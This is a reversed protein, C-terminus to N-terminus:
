HHCTMPLALLSICAHHTCTGLSAVHAAQLQKMVATSHAKYPMLLQAGLCVLIAVGVDKTAPEEKYQKVAVETCASVRWPCATQVRTLVTGSRLAFRSSLRKHQQDYCALWLQTWIHFHQRQLRMHGDAEAPSTHMLMSILIVSTQRGEMSSVTSGEQRLCM